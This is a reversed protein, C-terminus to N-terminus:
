QNYVARNSDAASQYYNSVETFAGLMEDKYIEDSIQIATFGCREMYAIRDRGVDGTARIEGKYGARVLHRAISFGRGDRFVPFDVAILPFKDLNELAVDLDDDGNIQIALQGDRNELTEKNELYLALPVIIDGAQDLTEENILTWNDAVVERNILLPM